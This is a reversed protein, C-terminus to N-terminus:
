DAAAATQALPVDPQRLPLWVRFVTGKGLQSAVDIRGHHEHVIGYSVSLGLGTGKGVAKTTFFPDFIRALDGAAIGSGTDEFEIWVLAGELGSRITITGREKIADASNVLMNLFVQNLRSPQCQISPLAGYCKRIEAKYKLENMVINLTSDIGQHVDAWQWKEDSASRSFNKLDHVIQKVRTIGEKSEALL